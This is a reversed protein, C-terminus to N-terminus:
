NKGQLIRILSVKGMLCIHDGCRDTIVMFKPLQVSIWSTALFSPLCHYFTCREGLGICLALHSGFHWTSSCKFQVILKGKCNYM